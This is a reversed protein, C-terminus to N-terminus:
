CIPRRGHPQIRAVILGRGVPRRERGDMRGASVFVQRSGRRDVRGNRPAGRGSPSRRRPAAAARQGQRERGADRADQAGAAEDEVVEFRGAGLREELGLQPDGGDASTTTKELGVRIAPVGSNSNAAAAAIASTGPAGWTRADDGVQELRALDRGVAVRGVVDDEEVEWRVVRRVGQRDQALAQM